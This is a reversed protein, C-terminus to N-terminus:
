REQLRVREEIEENQSELNWVLSNCSQPTPGKHAFIINKHFFNYLGCNIKISSHALNMLSLSFINRESGDSTSDLGSM